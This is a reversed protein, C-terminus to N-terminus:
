AINAISLIHAAIDNAANQRARELAAKQMMHLARTDYIITTITNALTPITMDRQPLLLAAGSSALAKANATQHDAAATPLPILISPIGWAALEATTMAGARCIALDAIAYADAMPSIYPRVKVTDSDLHRYRDYGGKGTAWIVSISDAARVVKSDLAGSARQALWGAVASNIAEAGQSGGFVLLTKRDADPLGWNALTARRDPRPVTPPDIPNGSDFVQTPPLHGVPGLKLFAAAEPFGLHIQAARSAFWRVTMGPLSNQEQLVIPIHHRSAYALAVGAVYGGTAVLAVPRHLEVIAALRRWASTAGVITRWNNWPASRYLPHLDLLEFPFGATPLVDREIGRHAGIFFPQVDLHLRVLARAIALAPYLHGGTGGGAFLVNVAGQRKGGEILQDKDNV